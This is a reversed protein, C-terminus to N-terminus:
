INKMLQNLFIEASPKSILYKEVVVPLPYSFVLKSNEGKNLESRRV